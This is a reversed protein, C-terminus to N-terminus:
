GITLSSQFKEVVVFISALFTSLKYVNQNQLPRM